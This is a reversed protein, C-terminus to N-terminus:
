PYGTFNSNKAEKKKEKEKILSIEDTILHHSRM